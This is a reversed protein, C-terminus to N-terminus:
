AGSVLLQIGAETDKDKEICSPSAFSDQRRNGIIRRWAGSVLLNIRAKTEKDKEICRLGALSAQSRNGERHV